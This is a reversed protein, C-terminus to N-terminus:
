LTHLNAVALSKREFALSKVVSLVRVLSKVWTMSTSNELKEQLRGTKLDWGRATYYDDLMPELHVVQGKAPGDPYPETFITTPLTDDERESRGSTSAKELNILREGRPSARSTSTSEPSQQKSGQSHKPM